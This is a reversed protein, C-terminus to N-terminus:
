AAQCLASDEVIVIGPSLGAEVVSEEQSYVYVMEEAPAYQVLRRARPLLVKSVYLESIKPTDLRSVSELESVVFGRSLTNIVSAFYEKEGPRYRVTTGDPETVAYPARYTSKLGCDVAFHVRVADKHETVLAIPRLDSDHLDLLVAYRQM